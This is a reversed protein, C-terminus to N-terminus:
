QKQDVKQQDQKAELGEQESEFVEKWKDSAEEQGEGEGAGAGGADGRGWGLRELRGLSSHNGSCHLVLCFCSGIIDMLLM